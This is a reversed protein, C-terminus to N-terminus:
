NVFKSENLTYHINHSSVKLGAPPNNTFNSLDPAIGDCIVNRLILMFSIRDVSM